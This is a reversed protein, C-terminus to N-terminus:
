YHYVLSKHAMASTADPVLEATGVNGAPSPIYVRAKEFHWDAASTDNATLTNKYDLELSGNAVYIKKDTYHLPTWGSQLSFDSKM